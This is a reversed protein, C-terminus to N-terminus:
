PAAMRLQSVVIAATDMGRAMGSFIILGRAASDCSLRQAMGVQFRRIVFELLLLIFMILLKHM